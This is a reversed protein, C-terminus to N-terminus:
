LNRISSIESNLDAIHMAHEEIRKEHESIKENLHMVALLKILNFCPDNKFNVVNRPNITLVLTPVDKNIWVRLAGTTIKISQFHVNRLAANLELAEPSTIDLSGQTNPAYAGAELATLFVTHIPTLIEKQSEHLEATRAALLKTHEAMMENVNM